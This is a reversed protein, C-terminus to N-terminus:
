IGTLSDSSRVKEELRENNSKTILYSEGLNMALQHKSDMLIIYVCFVMSPNLILPNGTFIMSPVHM